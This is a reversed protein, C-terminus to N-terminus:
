WARDVCLGSISLMAAMEDLAAGTTECLANMAQALKRMFEKKGELPVCRSFDGAVAASVIDAVEAEIPKEVTVNRWEMLTGARQRHADFVPNVTRQFKLAGIAIQAEHTGSLEDLLKRQHAPNKHFADMSSGILKSADFSPLRKRIDQECEHMMHDFAGNVYIINYQDDALMVSSRVVDLGSRVRLNIVKEAVSRKFVDTAKAIDGIEDGLPDYPVDVIRRKPSRSSKRSVLRSTCRRPANLDLRKGTEREIRDVMNMCIDFVVGRSILSNARNPSNALLPPASQALVQPAGLWLVAFLAAASPSARARDDL